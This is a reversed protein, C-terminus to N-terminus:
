YVFWDGLKAFFSGALTSIIAFMAIATSIGTFIDTFRFSVADGAVMWNIISFAPVIDIIAELFNIAPRFFPVIDCFRGLSGLDNIHFLHFLIDLPRGHDLGKGYDLHEWRWNKLVEMKFFSSKIWCSDDEKFTAAFTCREHKLGKAQNHHSSFFEPLLYHLIKLYFWSLHDALHSSCTLSCRDCSTIDMSVACDGLSYIARM